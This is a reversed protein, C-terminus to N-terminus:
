ITVGAMTLTADSTVDQNIVSADSESTLSGTLTLTKGDTGTVGVSAGVTLTRNAGATGMSIQYGDSSRLSLVQEVGAIYVAM